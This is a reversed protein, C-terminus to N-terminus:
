LHDRLVLGQEHGELEGAHLRHGDRLAHAAPEQLAAGVGHEDGARHLEEVLVTRVDVDPEDDRTVAIQVREAFRQLVLVLRDVEDGPVLSERVLQAVGGVEAVPDEEELVEDRFRPPRAGADQAGVVGLGALFLRWAEAAGAPRAAAAAPAGAGCRDADRCGRADGRDYRGTRGFRLLLLAAERHQQEILEDREARVLHRAAVEHAADDRQRVLFGRADEVLADVEPDRLVVDLGVLGRARSELVLLEERELEVIREDRLREEM